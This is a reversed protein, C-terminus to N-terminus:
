PTERLPIAACLSPLTRRPTNPPPRLNTRALTSLRLLRETALDADTECWRIYLGSLKPDVGFVDLPLAPTSPCLVRTPRWYYPMADQSRHAFPLPHGAILHWLEHFILPPWLQPQTTAPVCISVHDTDELKLLAAEIPSSRLTEATMPYVDDRILEIRIEMDLYEQLAGHLTEHDFATHDFQPVVRELDQLAGLVLSESPNPRHPCTRRNTALTLTMPSAAGFGRLGHNSLDADGRGEAENGGQM